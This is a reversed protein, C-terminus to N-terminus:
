RIVIVGSASDAKFSEDNWFHRYQFTSDNIFEGDQYDYWGDEAFTESLLYQESLTEKKLNIVYLSLSTDGGYEGVHITSIWIVNPNVKKYAFPSGYIPGLLTGNDLLILKNQLPFKLISYDFQLWSKGKPAVGLYVERPFEYTFPKLYEELPIIERLEMNEKERESFIGAHAFNNAEDLEKITNNPDIILCIYEGNDLIKPKDVVITDTISQGPELKEQNYSILMLDGDTSNNIDPYKKDRTFFIMLNLGYVPTTGIKDLSVYKDGTNKIIFSYTNTKLYSNDVIKIDSIILDPKASIKIFFLVAAIGTILITLAILSIKLSKKM